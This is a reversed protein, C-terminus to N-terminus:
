RGDHVSVLRMVDSLSYAVFQFLQNRSLLKLYPHSDCSDFRSDVTILWQDDRDGRELLM